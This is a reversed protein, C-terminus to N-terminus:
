HKENEPNIETNETNTLFEPCDCCHSPLIDKVSDYIGYEHLLKIPIPPFGNLM